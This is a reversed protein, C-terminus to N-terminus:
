RDTGLATQALKYEDSYSNSVTVIAELAMQYRAALLESQRATVPEALVSRVYASVTQAREEAAHRVAADVEAPVRTRLQVLKANESM